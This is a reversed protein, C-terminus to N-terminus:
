EQLRIRQPGRLERLHPHPILPRLLPPVVRPDVQDGLAPVAAQLRDLALEEGGRVPDGLTIQVLEEGRGAAAPERLAQHDRRRRLPHWLPPSSGRATPAPADARTPPNRATVPR